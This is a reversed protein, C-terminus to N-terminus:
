ARQKTDVVIEKALYGMLEERTNVVAEADWKDDLLEDRVINVQIRNMM